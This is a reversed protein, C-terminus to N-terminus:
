QAIWVTVEVQHTWGLQAHLFGAYGFELSEHRVSVGASVIDPNNAMGLRLAISELPLLELAWRAMLPHRVDKEGELFVILYPLPNYSVGMAAKQPLRQRIVGITEGLINEGAFGIHLGEIIRVGWGATVVVGYTRGYGKITTSRLDVALGVSLGEAITHGVGVEIGLEKYLDFGFHEFGAAVAVGALSFSSNLAVTRLEKLGFLGPSAFASIGPQVQMTLMAPNHAVAWSDGPLVTRVGALGISRVGKGNEGCHTHTASGLVVIVLVVMRNM